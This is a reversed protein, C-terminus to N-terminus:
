TLSKCSPTAKRRRGGLAGLPRSPLGAGSGLLGGGRGPGRRGGDSGKRPPPPEWFPAEDAGGCGKGGEVGARGGGEVMALGADVAASPPPRGSQPKQPNSGGGAWGGGGGAEVTPRDKAGSTSPTQGSRPERAGSRADARGGGRAGRGREATASEGAAPLISDPWIQVRPDGTGVRGGRMAASAPAPTGGPRGESRSSLDAATLFEGSDGRAGGHPSSGRRHGPPVAARPASGTSWWRRAFSM